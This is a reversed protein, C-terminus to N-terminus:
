QRNPKRPRARTARAIVRMLHNAMTLMELAAQPDDRLDHEHARPNRIGLMMGAFIFRYGDQEDGDTVTKLKNLRLMPKARDFVAMMMPTGDRGSAGAKKKVTSNVVKCAEGVAQAYYADRFLKRTAQRLSGDTVVADYRTMRQEADEPAAAPPAALPVPTTRAEVDTALQRALALIAGIRGTDNRAM